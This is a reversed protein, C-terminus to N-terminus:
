LPKMPHQCASADNMQKVLLRALDAQSSDVGDAMEELYKAARAGDETLFVLISCM